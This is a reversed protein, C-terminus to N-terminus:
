PGAGKAEEEVDEDTRQRGKNPREQGDLHTQDGVQAEDDDPSTQMPNRHAPRVPEPKQTRDPM